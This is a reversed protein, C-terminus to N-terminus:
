WLSSISLHTNGHMPLSKARNYVVFDELFMTHVTLKDNKVQDANWVYSDVNLVLTIGDGVQFRIKCRNYYILICKSCSICLIGYIGTTSTVLLRCVDDFSLSLPINNLIIRM